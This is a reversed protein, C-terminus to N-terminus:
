RTCSRTSFLAVSVDGVATNWRRRRFLRSRLLVVMGRRMMATEGVGRFFIQALRAATGGDGHPVYVVIVLQGPFAGVFWGHTWAEGSDSATGTKGSGDVGLLARRIQWATSWPSRWGARSLDLRRWGRLLERYARALELPTVAVGEVGLVALQRQEVAADKM